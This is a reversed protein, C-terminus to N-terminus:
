IGWVIQYVAAGAVAVALVAGAGALIYAAWRVDTESRETVERLEGIAALMQDMAADVRIDHDRAWEQTDEFTEISNPSVRNITRNQM